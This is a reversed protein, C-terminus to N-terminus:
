KYQFIQLQISSNSFNIKNVINKKNKIFNNTILDYVFKNSIEQTIEDYLKIGQVIKNEYFEVSLQFTLNKEVFNINNLVNENKDIKHNNFKFNIDFLISKFILEIQTLFNTEIYNDFYSDFNFNITYIEEIFNKNDDIIIISINKILNQFLFSEISDLFNHIYNIIDNDKIYKLFNCHFNNFNIFAEKPYVNRLYLIFHIFCELFNLFSYFFINRKCNLINNNNHNYLLDKDIHVKAFDFDNLNM